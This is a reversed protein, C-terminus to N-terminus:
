KLVNFNAKELVGVDSIENHILYLKELKHFNVKEFVNIDSFSKKENGARGRFIDIYWGENKKERYNKVLYRRGENKGPVHLPHFFTDYIENFSLNLKKLEKFNVNELPTIDSIINNYLNLIELENFNVKELITIDSIRNHPLYLIKLKKFNVKELVTIDKIENNM